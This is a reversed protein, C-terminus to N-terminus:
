FLVQIYSTHATNHGTNYPLPSHIQFHSQNLEYVLGRVVTTAEMEPLIQFWSCVNDVASPQFRLLELLTTCLCYNYYPSALESLCFVGANDMLVSRVQGIAQRGNPCQMLLDLDPSFLDEVMRSMGERFVGGADVGDEGM